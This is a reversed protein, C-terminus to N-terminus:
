WPTTWVGSSHGQQVVRRVAIKARTHADLTEGLGYLMGIWRAQMHRARDPSVNAHTLALECGTGRPTIEVSVHTVVHPQGTTWLTFALRRPPVIEIYEGRHEMRRANSRDAFLFVGGVRADIEVQTMPRWATAFLWRGATAPDLWADFVRQAPARFRRTVRLGETRTAPKM